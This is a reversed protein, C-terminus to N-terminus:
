IPFLGSNAAIGLYSIGLMLSLALLPVQLENVGSIRWDKIVLYVVFVLLVFSVVMLLVIARRQTLSFSESVWQPSSSRLGVIDPLVLDTMNTVVTALRLDDARQAGHHHHAGLFILSSAILLAVCIYQSRSM